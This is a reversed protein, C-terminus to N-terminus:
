NLWGSALAPPSGPLSVVWRGSHIALGKPRRLENLAFRFRVRKAALKGCSHTRCATKPLTELTVGRRDGPDDLGIISGM